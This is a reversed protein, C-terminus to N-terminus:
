VTNYEQTATDDSNYLVLWFHVKSYKESAVAVTVSPIKVALLLDHYDYLKM